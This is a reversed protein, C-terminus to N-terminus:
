RGWTSAFSLSSGHDSHMANSHGGHGDKHHVPPPSVGRSGGGYSASSATSVHLPSTVSNAGSIGGGKGSKTPSGSPSGSGSMPPPPPPVGLGVSDKVSDIISALAGANNLLAGRPQPEGIRIARVPGTTGSVATPAVTVM